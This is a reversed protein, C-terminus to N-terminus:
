RVCRQPVVGLVYVTEGEGPEGARRYFVDLGDVGVKLADHGFAYDLSVGLARSGVGPFESVLRMKAKVADRTSKDFSAIDAIFSRTFVMRAM